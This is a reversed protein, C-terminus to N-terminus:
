DLENDYMPMLLFKVSEVSPQPEPEFICATNSDVCNIRVQNSSIRKLISACNIGNLAFSFKPQPGDFSCPIEENAGVEDDKYGCSLSLKEENISFRIVKMPNVFNLMRNVSKLLQKRDCTIFYDFSSPIVSLYNPYRSDMECDRFRIFLYHSPDDSDMQVSLVGVAKNETFSLGLMGTNPLCKRIIDCMKRPLLLKADFISEDLIKEILTLQHGDSAVINLRNDRRFDLCVCNMAPRLTDDDLSNYCVDIWHKIGPTELTVSKVEPECGECWAEFSNKKILDPLVCEAYARPIFFSGFSHIVNVQYDMVEFRLSQEDLSKIANLLYYRNLGFSVNDASDLEEVPLSEQMFIMGDSSQVLLRGEAFSFLYNGLEPFHCRPNFAYKCRILAKLLKNRSITFTTM